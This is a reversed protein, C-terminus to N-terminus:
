HQKYFPTKSSDSKVAIPKVLISWILVKSEAIWDRGATTVILLNVPEEALLVM